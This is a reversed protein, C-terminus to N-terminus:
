KTSANKVNEDRISKLLEVMKESYKRTEQKSGSKFAFHYDNDSKKLDYGLRQNAQVILGSLSGWYDYDLKKAVQSLLYPFGVNPNSINSIGLLM